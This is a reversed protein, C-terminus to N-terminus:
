LHWKRKIHRALFFLSILFAIYYVINKWGPQGEFFALGIYIGVMVNVIMWLLIISITQVILILFARTDHEM